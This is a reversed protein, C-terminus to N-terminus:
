RLTIILQHEPILARPTKKKLAPALLKLLQDFQEFDMRTYKFFKDLDQDSKMEQFQREFEGGLTLRRMNLPRTWWRRILISFHQKM